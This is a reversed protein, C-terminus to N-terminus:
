LLDFTFRLLVRQEAQLHTSLQRDYDLKIVYVLSAFSVLRVSITNKWNIVPDDFSESSQFPILTDLETDIMFWRSLRASGIFTAEMGLIETPNVKEFCIADQCESVPDGEWHEREKLFSRVHYQRAGVGVRLHLDLLLHPSLDFSVGIGEKLELPDFPDALRVESPLSMTELIQNNTNLILVDRDQNKYVKNGPFINTDLGFRIYPGLWSLIRFTYIADLDVEDVTKQLDALALNPDPLASQGEDVQLRLYLLHNPDLYRLSFDLFANIAISNGVDRGAVNDLRNWQLDGGVILGLRWNEYDTKGEGRDVVGGGLFRGDEEDLVLTFHVMEGAEVRVTVFDTRARPTEGARVIMYRGTPLLWTRLTEGRTEDAGLGLGFNEGSPLAFIEYSGRFQMGRQDVVRVIMGAWDPQLLTTHGEFIEVQHDVMQSEVGSGVLVQYKGPLLITKKGTSARAVFEGKQMVLYAPEGAPDTMAPVFVAGKGVPVMEPDMELQIKPAPLQWGPPNCEEKPLSVKPM